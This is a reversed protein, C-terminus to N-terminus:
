DTPIELTNTLHLAKVCARGVLTDFTFSHAIVGGNERMSTFVSSSAKVPAALISSGVLALGRSIYLDLSVDTDGNGELRVWSM